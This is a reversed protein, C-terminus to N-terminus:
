DNLGELAGEVSWWFPRLDRPAPFEGKCGLPKELMSIIDKAVRNPIHRNIDVKDTAERLRTITPRMVVNM